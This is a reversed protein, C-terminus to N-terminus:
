LIELAQTCEETWVFRTDKTKLRELPATITAYDKIFRRFYGTLGLFARVEAVDKLPKIKMVSKVKEPNPLIGAPTVIHGLFSVSSRGWHCKSMKLKFGAERFKNLVQRIRILHDGFNESFIIVDDLYVLCTRWRYDVLINEMLREFAPVANCLGFPMVLWEYLGFKCTFATKQISNEDMPVNWYGSAVDMTSFLKAKGLVDLLDDVRPMPYCDKKTVSNLKRYDICFRISGDPKRIMLVPSAWPSISQRILGLELYQEIEAEMIEEERKSVRYPRQKIPAADGTDIAFKLLSTRGPAKSTTVFIDRYNLLEQRLKERQDLSLCSDTFDIPFETVDAKEMATAIVDKTKLMRSDRLTEIERIVGPYECTTLREKWRGSRYDDKDKYENLKDYKKDNEMSMYSENREEYSKPLIEIVALPTRKSIRIKELSDNFVEVLVRNQSATALSRAVLISRDRHLNKIGRVFCHAGERINYPATCTLLASQGSEINVSSRCSVVCSTRENEISLVESPRNQKILDLRITRRAGPIKITNLQLDILAGWRRLLDIGLICDVPSDQMVSFPFREKRGEIEVVMVKTGLISLPQGDVSVLQRANARVKLKPCGMREWVTKSILSESAGTDVLSQVKTNEIRVLLEPSLKTKCVSGVFRRPIEQGSEDKFLDRVYERDLRRSARHGRKIEMRREEEKNLLEDIYEDSDISYEPEYDFYDVPLENIFERYKEYCSKCNMYKECIIKDIPGKEKSKGFDKLRNDTRMFTGRETKTLRKRDNEKKELEENDYEDRMAEEFDKLDELLPIDWASTDSVMELVWNPVLEKPIETRSRRKIYYYKPKVPGVRIGKAEEVPDYDPDNVWVKRRRHDDTSPTVQEEQLSENKISPCPGVRIGKAEEVPDYTPDNIWTKVRRGTSLPTVEPNEEMKDDVETMSDTVKKKGTEYSRRRCVHNISPIPTVVYYEEDDESDHSVTETSENLAEYLNETCFSPRTAKSKSRALAKRHLRGWRTPAVLAKEEVEFNRDAKRAEECKNLTDEYWKHWVDENEIESPAALLHQESEDIDLKKLIEEHSPNRRREKLKLITAKTEAPQLPYLRDELEKSYVSTDSSSDAAIEKLTSDSFLELYPSCENKNVNVLNGEVEESSMSQSPKSVPSTKAIAGGKAECSGILGM